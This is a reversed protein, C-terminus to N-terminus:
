GGYTVSVIDSLQGIEADNIVGRMSYERVEAVGAQALPTHDEYPSNTDRAVFKFNAQGKLRCYINVGDTESKTFEIKVTGPQVTIKFTPKFTDPDFSSEPGIIGLDDGIAETFAGAIKSKAAQVRIDRLLNKQATRVAAAAAELANKQQVYSNFQSLYATIAGQMATVQAATFGLAVGHTGLKASYNALWNLQDGDSRPIFDPTLSPHPEHNQNCNRGSLVPSARPVLPANWPVM